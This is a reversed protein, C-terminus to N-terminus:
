KIKTGAPADKDPALLVPKGEVDAALLMGRSEIGRIKVPKLNAVVIIRRGVLEEKAYSAKVGAVLKRTGLGGLSVDLLYLKDANPHDEV